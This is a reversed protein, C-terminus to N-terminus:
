TMGNSANDRVLVVLREIDLCWTRMVEILANKIARGTHKGSFKQVELTWNKLEFSETVYHLTFSIFSETACSTWIDTAACYYAMETSVMRGLKRRLNSAIAEVNETATQPRHLPLKGSCANAFEFAKRLGDDEVIALPRLSRCIWTAVVRNFETADGATSDKM